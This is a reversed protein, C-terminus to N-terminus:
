RGKNARHPTRVEIDGALNSISKGQGLIYVKWDTKRADDLEGARQQTFLMVKSAKWVLAPHLTTGTSEITLEANRSPYEHRSGRTADQLLRLDAREEKTTCISEMRGWIKFYSQPEIGTGENTIVALFGEVDKVRSGNRYKVKKTIPGVSTEHAIGLRDAVYDDNGLFYEEVLDWREEDPMSTLFFGSIVKSSYDHRADLEKLVDNSYRKDASLEKLKVPDNLRVFIEPNDGGRVEYTALKLTQLLEALEFRIGPSQPDLYMVSESREGPDLYRINSSVSDLFPTVDGARVKYRPLTSGERQIRVVFKLNSSGSKTIGRVPKVLADLLGDLTRSDTVERPLRSAMDDRFDKKSFEGGRSLQLLSDRLAESYQQVHEKVLSFAEDYSVTLVLRSSVSPEGSHMGIDGKFLDYKFQAFTRDPFNEEWMRDAQLRYISGMDAIKVTSQGPRVEYRSRAKSVPTLYTDYRKVFDDEASQEICIYATTYAPKPRVVIVPFNYKAELDRSVMMLASKVRNAKKTEDSETPFLYAFSEPSVLLNQSRGGKPRSIYISYLKAMIERLQWQRFQSMAYLSRAYSNDKAFFDICATGRINRKRAARGIEQIYDSLNGTPAYHYIATIDDIDVGMGFAKTSVLVRCRGHKFSAEVLRRYEKPKGAHYGLVKADKEGLVDMIHDVHTRYPCYVIAHHDAAVAERIWKVALETKVEKLTGPNDIKKQVNISFSIDERRPNGLYLKCSGLELDRITQNVVDDKGGYVATATLCFTPFLNGQRRLKKLYPGLYWYDPRFDKGWSTVTHVEDVVVLGLTRGGLINDISSSLLLEPALYVLSVEGNRIRHYEHTREDFSQDSNIAAVSTVGRRRLNEVQDKMLAKLPEIVLTVVDHKEALYLAPIQFLLSKGAGTPATVLVDSFNEEGALALEAQKVVFWSIAGQSIEEMQNDEHPHKYFRLNRFRADAGWCKKLIPLLENGGEGDGTGAKETSADVVTCGAGCDILLGAFALLSGRYPNVNFDNNTGEDGLTFSRASVEGYSVGLRVSLYQPSPVAIPESLADGGDVFDVSDAPEILNVIECDVEDDIRIPKTLYNDKVKFAQAYYKASKPEEIQSMGDLFDALDDLESPSVPSPYGESDLFLNNRVIIVKGEYLDHDSLFSKVLIGQEYLLLVPGNSISLSKLTTKRSAALADLLLNGEDDLVTSFSSHAYPSTALLSSEVSTLGLFLLVADQGRYASVITGVRSIFWSKFSESCDVSATM